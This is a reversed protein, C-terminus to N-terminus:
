YYLRICVYKYLIVEPTWVENENTNITTLGGYDEPKWQIKEDIWHQFM